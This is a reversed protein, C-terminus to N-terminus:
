ESGGRGGGGLYPYLFISSHSPLKSVYLKDVYSFKYVNSLEWVGKRNELRCTLMSMFPHASTKLRLPRSEEECKGDDPRMLSM